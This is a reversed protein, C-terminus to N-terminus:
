KKVKEERHKRKIRKVGFILKYNISYRKTLGRKTM